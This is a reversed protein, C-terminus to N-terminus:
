SVGEGFVKMGAIDGDKHAQVAISLDLAFEDLVKALNELAKQIGELWMIQMAFLVAGFFSNKLAQIIKELIKAIRRCEEADQKMSKSVSLIVEYDMSVDVM